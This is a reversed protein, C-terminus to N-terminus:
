DFLCQDAKIDVIHNFKPIKTEYTWLKIVVNKQRPSITIGLIKDPRDTIIEGIAAKCLNDWQSRYSKKNNKCKIFHLKDYTEWIPLCNARMLFFMGITFDSIKNFVTWFDSITNIEMIKYYDDITWSNDDVSHYWLIWKDNLNYNKNEESMKFM